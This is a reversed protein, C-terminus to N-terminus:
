TQREREALKREDAFNRTPKTSDSFDAELNKTQAKTQPPKSQSRKTAEAKNTTQKHLNEFDAQRKKAFTKAFSFAASKEALTKTLM